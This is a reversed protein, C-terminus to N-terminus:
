MGTRHIKGSDCIKESTLPPHAGQCQMWPLDIEGPTRAGWWGVRARGQGGDETHAAREPLLNDEPFSHPQCSLYLTRSSHATGLLFERGGSRYMGGSPQITIGGMGLYLTM